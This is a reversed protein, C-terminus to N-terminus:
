SAKEPKSPLQQLYHIYEPPLHHEIAGSILMQKYSDFAIPREILYDSIYTEAEVLEGNDKIVKITIRNYCKEIKDLKTIEDFSMEYLSGWTVFGPKYLLNAKGSGDKSKKNFTVCWDSLAARGIATTSSIRQVLHSSSMNSGYAFYFIKM